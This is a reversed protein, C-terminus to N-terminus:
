ATHLRGQAAPRRARDAHASVLRQGSPGTGLHAFRGHRESCELVHLPIQRALRVTVFAGAGLLGFTVFVLSILDM